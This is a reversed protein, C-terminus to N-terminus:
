RIPPMNHAQRWKNYIPRKQELPMNTYPDEYWAKAAEPYQFEIRNLEKTVDWVTTKWFYGFGAKTTDPNWYPYGWEFHWDRNRVIAWNNAQGYDLLLNGYIDTISPPSLYQNTKRQKLGSFYIELDACYNTGSQTM